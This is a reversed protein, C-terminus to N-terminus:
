DNTIIYSKLEKFLTTLVSFIIAGVLLNLGIQWGLDSLWSRPNQLGNFYGYNILWIILSSLITGILILISNSYISRNTLLNDSLIKIIIFTFIFALVHSGFFLNSDHDLLLGMTLSWGLGAEFGFVYTIIVVIVLPLMLQNAPYNLAIILSVQMLYTILIIALHSLYIM